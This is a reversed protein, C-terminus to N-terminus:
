RPSQIARLAQTANPDDPSARLALIFEARAEPLKNAFRYLKGLNYHADYSDPDLLEAQRFHVFAGAPDNLKM